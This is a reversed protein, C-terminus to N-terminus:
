AAKQKAAKAAAKKMIVLQNKIKSITIESHEEAKPASLDGLKALLKEEVTDYEAITEVDTADDPEVLSDGDSEGASDEDEEQMAKKAQAKALEAAKTVSLKGAEVQQITEPDGFGLVKRARVISSIGVKCLKSAQEISCGELKHQNDGVEFSAMKAGIMARQSENLHRRHLNASLVFGIPDTGYYKKFHADKIERGSIELALARNRGDLIKDEYVVIPERLDNEKIDEVLALFEASFLDLMPFIEAIPHPPYKFKGVPVPDTKPATPAPAAMVSGEGGGGGPGSRM